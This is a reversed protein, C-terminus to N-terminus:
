DVLGHKIAYHSIEANTRLGMKELIRSRYTSITKVSLGLEKAIEKSTKGSAILRMVQSERESLTDHPRKNSDEAFHTAIHEALSLSVYKGGGLIKRVAQVLEAPASDKTLYGSAGAKLVRIAYQDEPHISLILVPLAPHKHRIHKLIDIGSQGPMTIDLVLVDWHDNRLLDLVREGNEAEGFATEDFEEALIDRLGRRVVAHDDAILIRAM